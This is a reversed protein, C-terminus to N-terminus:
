YDNQNRRKMITAFIIGFLLPFMILLNLAKREQEKHVAFAMLFEIIAINEPADFLQGIDNLGAFLFLFQMEDINNRFSWSKHWSTQKATLVKHCNACVTITASSNHRGAIHHQELVLPNAEFCVICCGSSTLDFGQAGNGSKSQWFVQANTQRQFQVIERIDNRREQKYEDFSVM